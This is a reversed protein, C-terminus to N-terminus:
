RDGFTKMEGENKFSLKQIYFEPNIPKKKETM